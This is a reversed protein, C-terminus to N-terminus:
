VGLNFSLVSAVHNRREATVPSVTPDQCYGPLSRVGCLTVNRGCRRYRPKNWVPWTRNVTGTLVCVDNDFPARYSWAVDRYVPWATLGGQRPTCIWLDTRMKSQWPKRLWDASRSGVKCCFRDSHPCNPAGVCMEPSLRRLTISIRQIATVAPRDIDCWIWFIMVDHEFGVRESLEAHM